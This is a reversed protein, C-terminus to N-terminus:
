EETQVEPKYCDQHHHHHHHTHTCVLGIIVLKIMVMVALCGVIEKKHAALCCEMEEKGEHGHM